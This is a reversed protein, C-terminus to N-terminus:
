IQAVPHQVHRFGSKLLGHPTLARIQQRIGSPDIESPPDSHGSLDSRVSSIRGRSQEHTLSRWFFNWASSKKVDAICISDDDIRIATTSVHARRNISRFSAFFRCIWGSQLQPYADTLSPHISRFGSPEDEVNKLFNLMKLFLGDDPRIARDDFNVMILFWGNSGAM